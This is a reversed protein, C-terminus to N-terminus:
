VEICGTLFGSYLFYGVSYNYQPSIIPFNIKKKKKEFVWQPDQTLVHPGMSRGM